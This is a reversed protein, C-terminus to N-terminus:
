IDKAMKVYKMQLEHVAGELLGDEEESLNGRTKERLMMLIDIIYKAQPLNKRKEKSVPDPIEGMFMFGQMVLGTLFSRFDAEPFHGEEKEEEVKGKEKTIDEKWSEDVKKKPIEEKKNEKESM